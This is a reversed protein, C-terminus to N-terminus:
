VTAKVAGRFEALAIFYEARLKYQFRDGIFLQDANPLDALFFEPEERGMLYRVTISEVEASSRHVGWDTADTFLPNVNIYENESGFLHYLASAQTQNLKYSADWLSIPVDLYFSGPKARTGMKETSGPQTQNLLKLVAAIVEAESIASAQANNHSAHFWALGDEAYTGNAIWPTWIARALTRRAARGKDAILRQVAAIDDNIITKRSITIIEGTQIVPFAGLAREALKPAEPYDASEPDVVPIDAGVNLGVLRQPRLDPTSGPRSITEEGYLPEAYSALLVRRMTNGLLNAFDISVQSERV